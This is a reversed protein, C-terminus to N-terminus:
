IRFGFKGLIRKDESFGFVETRTIFLSFSPEDLLDHDVYISYEEVSNVLFSEVISIFRLNWLKRTNLEISIGRSDVYDDNMTFDREDYNGPVPMKGIESLSQRLSEHVQWYEESFDEETFNESYRPPNFSRELLENIKFKEVIKHKM